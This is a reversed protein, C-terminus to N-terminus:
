PLEHEVRQILITNKPIKVRGLQECLKKNYAPNTDQFEPETTFYIEGSPIHRVTYSKDSRLYRRAAKITMENGHRNTPKTVEEGTTVYIIQYM